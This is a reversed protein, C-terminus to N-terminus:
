LDRSQRAILPMSLREAHRHLAYSRGGSASTPSPTGMAPPPREHTVTAAQGPTIAVAVRAKSPQPPQDRDRVRDDTDIQRNLLLHDHCRGHSSLTPAYSM